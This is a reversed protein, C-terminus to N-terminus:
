SVISVEYAGPLPVSDIISTQIRLSCLREYEFTTLVVGAIM